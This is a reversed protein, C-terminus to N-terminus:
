NAKLRLKDKGYERLVMLKHMQIDSSIIQSWLSAKIIHAQIISVSQEMVTMRWLYKTRSFIFQDLGWFDCLWNTEKSKDKDENM